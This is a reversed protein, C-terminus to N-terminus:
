SPRNIAAYLLSDRWEGRILKHDRMRGELEMGAKELVRSSGRNDPHCTAAIRHLDLRDFGFRLL